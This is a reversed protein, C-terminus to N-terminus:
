IAQAASPSTLYIFSRVASWFSLSVSFYYRIFGFKEYSGKSVCLFTNMIFTFPFYFHYIILFLTIWPNWNNPNPMELLPFLTVVKCDNNFCSSVSIFLILMSESVIGSVISDKQMDPPFLQLATISSFFPSLISLNSAILNCAFLIAVTPLKLLVACLLLSRHLIFHFLFEQSM